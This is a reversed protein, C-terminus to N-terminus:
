LAAFSNQLLVKCSLRAVPVRMEIKSTRFDNERREAKTEVTASCNRPVRSSMTETVDESLGLIFM